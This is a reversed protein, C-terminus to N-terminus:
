IYDRQTCTNRKEDTALVTFIRNVKLHRTWVFHWFCQTYRWFCANCKQMDSFEEGDLQRMLSRKWTVSINEWHQECVSECTIQLIPKWVILVPLNKEQVEREWTSGIKCSRVGSIQFMRLDAGSDHVSSFTVVMCPLLYVVVETSSLPSIGGTFLKAPNVAALDLKTIYFSFCTAFM